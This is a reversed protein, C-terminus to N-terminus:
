LSLGKAVSGDKKFTIHTNNGGGNGLIIDKRAQNMMPKGDQDLVPRGQSDRLPTPQEGIPPPVFRVAGGLLQKLCSAQALSLTDREGSQQYRLIIRNAIRTWGTPALCDTCRGYYPAIHSYQKWNTQAWIQWNLQGQQDIWETLHIIGLQPKLFGSAECEAIFQSLIKKQKKDKIDSQVCPQARLPSQSVLILLLLYLLRKM